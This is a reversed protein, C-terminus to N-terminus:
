NRQTAFGLVSATANTLTLVRIGNSFSIPNSSFDFIKSEGATAIRLDLKAVDSGPDTLVIQASADTSSLVVATLIVKMDLDDASDTYETDVCWVNGRLTNAM